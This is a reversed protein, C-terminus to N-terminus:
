KIRRRKILKKWLVSKKKKINFFMKITHAINLQQHQDGQHVRLIGYWLYKRDVQQGARPKKEVNTYIRRELRFKGDYQLVGTEIM